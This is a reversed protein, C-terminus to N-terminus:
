GGVAVDEVRLLLVECGRLKGDIALNFTALDRTRGGPMGGNINV